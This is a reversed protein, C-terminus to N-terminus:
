IVASLESIRYDGHAPNLENSSYGNATINSTRNQPSWDKIRATGGDDMFAEYNLHLQCDSWLRSIPKNNYIASLLEIQDAVGKYISTHVFYADSYNGNDMGINLTGSLDEFGANSLSNSLTRQMGNIYVGLNFDPFIIGVLYIIDNIKILDVTSSGLIVNDNNWFTVTTSSPVTTFGIIKSGDRKMIIGKYAAAPTGSKFKLGVIITYGNEPTPSFGSVSIYQSSGNVSLAKRDPLLTIPNLNMPKDATTWTFVEAHRNNGSIDTAFYDGGSEFMSTFDLNFLENDMSLLERSEIAKREWSTPIDTTMISRIIGNSTYLPNGPFQSLFRVRDFTENSSSVHNDIDNVYYHRSSGDFQIWVKNIGPIATYSNQNGLYCVIISGGNLIVGFGLNSDRGGFIGNYSAALGDYWFEVYLSWVSPAPTYSPIEAYISSGNGKLFRNPLKLGNYFGVDCSRLMENSTGLEDSSFNILTGNNPSLATGSSKAFNVTSVSDVLSTGITYNMQYWAVAYQRLASHILNTNHWQELDSSTMGYGKLVLLQAMEGDLANSLGANVGLLMTEAATYLNFDGSVSASHGLRNNIYIRANSGIKSITIRFGSAFQGDTVTLSTGTSIGTGTSAFSVVVYDGTANDPCYIQLNGASDSLFSVPNTRDNVKVIFSITFDGSGFNWRSNLAIQAYQTLSSKFGLMGETAIFERREIPTNM